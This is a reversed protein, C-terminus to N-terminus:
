VIQSFVDDLDTRSKSRLRKGPRLLLFRYRKWAQSALVAAPFIIVLPLVTLLDAKEKDLREDARSVEEYGAVRLPGGRDPREVTEVAGESYFDVLYRVARDESMRAEPFWGKPRTPDETPDGRLRNNVKNHFEWLAVVADAPSHGGAAWSSTGGMFHRRCTRCNFWEDVWGRMVRLPALEADCAATLCGVTLAHFLQWLGCPLGRYQPASGACGLWTYAYQKRGPSRSAPPDVSLLFALSQAAAPSPQDGSLSDPSIRQLEDRIRASPFARSALRLLDAKGADSAGAVRTASLAFHLAAALDQLYVADPNAPQSNQLPNAATGDTGQRAWATHKARIAASCASRAVEPGQIVCVRQIEDWLETQVLKTDEPGGESDPVRLVTSESRDPGWAKVFPFEVAGHAACVDPQEACNVSGIACPLEESLARKALRHFPGALARCGGCEPHYFEVIWPCGPVDLDAPEAEWPLAELEVVGNEVRVGRAAAFCLATLLGGVIGFPSRM